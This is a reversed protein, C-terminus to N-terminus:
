SSVIQHVTKNFSEDESLILLIILSMYIHYSTSHPANYLTQLIPIVQPPPAFEFTPAKTVCRGAFVCNLKFLYLFFAILIAFLSRLHVRRAIGLPTSNLLVREGRNAQKRGRRESARNPAKTEEEKGWGVRIYDCYAM